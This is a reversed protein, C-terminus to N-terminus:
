CGREAAVLRDEVEVGVGALAVDDPEGEEVVERLQLLRRMDDVDFALDRRPDVVDGLALLSREGEDAVVDRRVLVNEDWKRSNYVAPPSAARGPQRQRPTPAVRGSARKHGRTVRPARACTRYAQIRCGPVPRRLSSVIRRAHATSKRKRQEAGTRGEGLVRRLADDVPPGADDEVARGVEVLGPRRVGARPDGLPDHALGALRPHLDGDEFHGAFRLPHLLRGLGPEVAAVRQRHQKLELPAVPGSPLVASSRLM